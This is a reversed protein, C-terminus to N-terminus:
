EGKLRSAGPRPPCGPLSGGEADASIFMFNTQQQQSVVVLAERPEASRVSYWRQGRLLAAWGHFPLSCSRHRGALSGEPVRPSREWLPM